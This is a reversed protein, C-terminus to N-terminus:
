ASVLPLLLTVRYCGDADHGARCSTEEGFRARLRERVNLLGVGTGAGDRVDGVKHFYRDGDNEVVLRLGDEHREARVAVTVRRESRAVGFKIANEVLPQLLLAPVRAEMLEEPIDIVVHLREPFRVSEIDMYLRQLAIEERLSVDDVPDIALTSRFFASLNLIMWEAEETRRTMMLASLSNLTNFLFHPNIQYRLARLQSAQALRQFEAAQREMSRWRSASIMGVFFSGLGFYFFYWGTANATVMRPAGTLVRQRLSPLKVVTERTEGRRRYSVQGSGRTTVVTGDELTRTNVTGGDLQPSLALYFAMEAAAFGFSFPLSLLAAAVLGSVLRKRAALYLLACFFFSLLFGFVMAIDLAPDLLEELKGDLAAIITRYTLHLAWFGSVVKVALRRDARAQAAREADTLIM